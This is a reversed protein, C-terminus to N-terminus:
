DIGPGSVRKLQKVTSPLTCQQEDVPKRNVQVIM